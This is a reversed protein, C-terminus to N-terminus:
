RKEPGASGKPDAGMAPQQNEGKGFIDVGPDLGLLKLIWALIYGVVLPWWHMLAIALRRM